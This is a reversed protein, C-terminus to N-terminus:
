ILEIYDLDVVGAGSIFGSSGGSSSTPGPAAKALRIINYGANLLVTTSVHTFGGPSTPPYALMSYTGGNVSLGHTALSAGHNAYWVGMTYPRTTPMQVVFDVYSGFRPDSGSDMRGVYGGNSANQHPLPRARFLSANEAEYRSQYSPVGFIPQVVLHYASGAVMNPIVVALEGDVVPYIQNLVVTPASVAGFRGSSPTAEVTVSAMTGLELGSLRVTNNGTEDGVVVHVIKRTSDYSAFGDLGNQYPPTTELMNGAMDGYWKYLWWSGTPQVGNVVLGDMTGAEYWFARQADAVRARELKAIYSATRGPVDVEDIGAYGSISIPLRPIGLSEELQRYEAVNAAIRPSSHDVEHWSVVDPLANNAVAFSLFSQMFAPDWRSLSPGVIPTRQDRARIQRHIRFWGQNFPGAAATNWTVDPENWIEWGAINGVTYANLRTGVMMDVITLWDPSWQYAAGPYRDTMRVYHGAGARDAQPAVALSDGILPLTGVSPAAQILRNLRLPLLSSNAPRDNQVLAHVGGAAVRRVPHFGTAGLGVDLIRGVPEPPSTGECLTGNFHFNSPQVGVADWGGQFGVTISGQTAVTGNWIANSVTVDAGSQDFIGSWGTVVREEASFSWTLEWSTVPDGVNTVTVDAVFGTTWGALVRYTVQCGAAAHAPQPAAVSLSGAVLVAMPLAIM